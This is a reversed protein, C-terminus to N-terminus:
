QIYTGGTVQFTLTAPDTLRLIVYIYRASVEHGAGVVLVRPLTVVGADLNYAARCDSDPVQAPDAPFAGTLRFSLPDEALSSLTVNNYAVGGVDVWAIELAGEESHFAALCSPEAEAIPEPTPTPTPMPPPVPLPTPTPEPTPEPTLEPTPTPTPIPEGVQCEPYIVQNLADTCDIAGTQEGPIHHDASAAATLLLTLLPILRRNM